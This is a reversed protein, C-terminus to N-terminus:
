DHLLLALLINALLAGLAVAVAIWSLRRTEAAQRASQRSTLEQHGLMTLMTRLEVNMAVLNNFDPIGAPGTLAAMDSRLDVDDLHYPFGETLGPVVSM